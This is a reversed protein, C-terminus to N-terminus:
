SAKQGKLKGGRYARYYDWANHNAEAELDWIGRNYQDLHDLYIHALEHGLAHRQRIPAATSDIAVIYYEEVEIMAGCITGTEKPFPIWVIAIKRGNHTLCGTAKYAQHLEAKTM